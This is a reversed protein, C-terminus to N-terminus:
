VRAIGGINLIVSAPDTKSPIKQVDFRWSALATDIETAHTAGKQFLARGQPALHRLAFDLLRPLPALARASLVDAQLPALSEIRETLITPTVGTEVAVTRLFTCKRLDAEVLTVRLDPAREAALLAIVLGPFGGGSGLDAWHTASAPRLAFLQASDLFHRPWVESLTAKSVLNIAPNWKELLAAYIQLREITERSVDCEARIAEEAPTM